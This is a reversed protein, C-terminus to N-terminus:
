LKLNLDLDISEGVVNCNQFRDSQQGIQTVKTSPPISNYRYQRQQNTQNFGPPPAVQDKMNGKLNSSVFASSSKLKSCSCQTPPALRLFDGGINKKGKKNKKSNMNSNSASLSPIERLTSNGFDLNFGRGSGCPITESAKMTTAFTLPKFNSSSVPSTALSFPNPRKIGIMKEEQRKSVYSGSYNQNSPQEVSSHPMTTSSTGSSVSVMPSFPHHHQTQMWNSLPRIPNSDFALSSTFALGAPDMGLNKGFDFDHPDWLQPGSVHGLAPIGHLGANSGGSSNAFSVTSSPLSNPSSPQNSHHCNLFQHHMDLLPNTSSAIAAQVVKEKQEEELRIKELQAVGLGRQPVRKPKPKKCPRGVGRRGGVCGIRNSKPTEDEQEQSMAAKMWIVCM